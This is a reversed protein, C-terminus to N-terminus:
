KKGMVKRPIFTVVHGIRFSLSARTKDLESRYFEVEKVLTEINKNVVIPTKQNKMQKELTKIQRELSERKTRNWTLKEIVQEPTLFESNSIRIHRVKYLLYACDQMNDSITDVIDVYQQYELINLFYEEDRGNIGLAEFWETRLVNFLKYATEDPLTNLNWLCSHLAYNVFHQEYKEFVSMEILMSKVKQLANYFCEWSLERTASLSTAVNRRQTYLAKEVISIRSAKIISAFVFYMDNTTRQEQFKLNNNLVFSRKYLKDWAWGMISLFPNNEISAGSFPRQLPLMNKKVTFKNRTVTGTENDYQNSECICVDTNQILSKDYLEKLMNIDFFDDADLFSLYEGKAISLGFNRAVGAGSNNQHYVKIRNDKFAYQELIVDSGDTAGDNVCIIEIDRLSQNILSDLCKPLFEAVNYVPLIVSVKVLKRVVNYYYEEHDRMIWNLDNWETTTFVSRDLEGALNAKNFEDAFASLYEKKYEDGIRAVTFLYTHYMKYYFVPLFIKEKQEDRALYERIFEYEKNACYVKERNHVSSNPNDRRNMYYPKDIFMMKKSNSFTQFWFGNDQYSAGPTENHRINYKALFERSYIGSWTNMIFRFVDINEHPDIVINYNERVRAISNYSLFRNEKEGQFRIFDAKVLDLDHQKAIKYLDKYMDLNVFDDSEVIGIYEGVAMDIGINMTHGYGANDKDIVKVRNDRNAYEILIDISSDSSGDNVCIIEIEDLSQNIISDLCERLYIEVNCVPVIVSVKVEKISPKDFNILNRIKVKNKTEEINQQANEAFNFTNKIKKM